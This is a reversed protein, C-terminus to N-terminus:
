ILQAVTRCWFHISLNSQLMMLAHYHLKELVTEGSAGVSKVYRNSMKPPTPFTDAKIVSHTAGSDVLFTVCKGHVLLTHTPMDTYADRSYKANTGIPQTNAMEQNKELQAIADNILAHTHSTCDGTQHTPQQEDHTLTTLTLPASEEGEQAAM